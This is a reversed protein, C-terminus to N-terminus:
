FSWIYPILLVSLIFVMVQLPLGIRVFDNASYHGISKIILNARYGRATMFSSAGAIAIAVFFPKPDVNLMQAAVIAVPFVLAVAANNSIIETFVTTFLYLLALVGWPGLSRVTEIFERALAQAIGTNQIAASVAFASAIAILLDWTINKTYNQAPLIRTWVLLMAAVAVMVFINLRVGFGWSVMENILIGAVMTLLIFLAIWRKRSTKEVPMDQMYNVLYFMSRSGWNKEFHDTALLVLNDGVRLELKNLNATIREGNRHVALVAANFHEFFNFETLTMGLGPFRPALVVEYNKLENPDTDKLFDVGKLRIEKHTLIYNLRDSNGTLLLEDGPLLTLQGHGPRIIKGDREVSYVELGNLSNLMGNNITEGIFHSDDNLLVNYYYDKVGAKKKAKALVRQGPLLRNGLVSMYIFGFAAIILGLKALEFLHFGKYGNEIMLGHVVLNSSTGILTCMGGFIAAYALPILLKKYPINMMKAWKLLIPTTNVVIPLNNLFASLFSVPVMIRPLMFTMRSKKRPLYAQALRTILGSQKIGENVLFLVGITLVGPNSFGRIMEQASIIGTALFIVAASFLILGPRLWQFLFAALIYVIVIIAILIDINM